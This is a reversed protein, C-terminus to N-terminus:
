VGVQLLQRLRPERSAPGGNKFDNLMDAYNEPSSSALLDLSSTSGYQRHLASTVSTLAASPLDADDVVEVSDMELNSNSRYLGRGVRRSGPVRAGISAPHPFNQPPSPSPPSALKQRHPPQPPPPQEQQQQKLDVSVPTVGGGGAGVRNDVAAYTQTRTRPGHPGHFTRSRQRNGRESYSARMSIIGKQMKARYFSNSSAPAVGGQLMDEMSSRQGQGLQGGVRSYPDADSTKSDFSRHYAQAM